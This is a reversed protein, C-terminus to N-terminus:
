RIREEQKDFTLNLGLRFNVNRSDRPRIVGAVNDSVGYLQVSGFRVVVAAGANEWRRNKWSISTALDLFRFVRRRINLQFAPRVNGLYEAFATVGLGTHEDMEWQVSAYARPVLYSVYVSSDEHPQFTARLTDTLAKVGLTDVSFYDNLEIGRFTYNGKVHYRKVDDSWRIAGLNGVSAQLLLRPWPRYTVGVDMAMGSNRFNLIARWPDEGFKDMGSTYVTYDAAAHITYDSSDTYFTIHGRRTEANGLGALYKARVGISFKGLVYGASLSLERYYHADLHPGLRVTDGAYPANGHWFFNLLDKSYFLKLNVKESILASAFFNGRRWSGRALDTNLQYQILNQVNLKKLVQDITLVVSDDAYRKVLDNFSFTNNGYNFAVSPLGVVWGEKEPVWAPNTSGAQPLASLSHLLLEQQGYVKWFSFLLAITVSARM